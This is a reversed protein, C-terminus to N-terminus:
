STSPMSRESRVQDGAAEGVAQVLGRRARGRDLARHLQEDVAGGLEPAIPAVIEPAPGATSRQHKQCSVPLTTSAAVAARRRAPGLDAPRRERGSARVDPATRATSRDLTVRAACSRSRTRTSTRASSWGNEFPIVDLGDWDRKGTPEAVLDGRRMENAHTADGDVGPGRPTACTSDGTSASTPGPRSSRASTGAARGRGSAATHNEFVMDPAHMAMIADLDHANWADNYRSRRSAHASRGAQAGPRGRGARRAALARRSVACCSAPSRSTTSGRDPRYDLIPIAREASRRLRDVPPDREVAQRRLARAAGRADAPTTPACTPSTSCWGSCSSSPTSRDRALDLVPDGARRGSALLVAGRDVADRPRRRRAREGDAPRPDTPLRDPDHGQQRKLDRLANRLTVERGIKGALM